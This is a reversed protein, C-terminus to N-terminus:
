DDVPAYLVDTDAAAHTFGYSSYLRVAGVNAAEVYLVVEDLGRAALHELGAVLLARGLGSGQTTPHVGIVYVEGYAPLGATAPHVKTWHFGVLRGDRTGVFFGAPDFWAEAMRETLGAQDLGGQEPHDAFAAANVELFAADDMGPRFTRLEYGPPVSAPPAPVESPRRMLWLERVSRFGSRAALAAAAPHNGHSWATLPIGDVTDVVARALAAGLGRGRAEPAVVLELEPRSGGYLGHVYAFGEARRASPEAAVLLIGTELGHNRLTLVAAENLSERGDHAAAAEAIRKVDGAGGAGTSWDFREHDLRTVTM